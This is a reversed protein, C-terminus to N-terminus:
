ISISICIIWTDFHIRHLVLTGTGGKDMNVTTTNSQRRRPKCDVIGSHINELLRLSGVKLEQLEDDLLLLHLAVTLHAAPSIFLSIM